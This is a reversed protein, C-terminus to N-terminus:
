FPRHIRNALGAKLDADHVVIPIQPRRAALYAPTAVYGGFGVVVQARTRDLVEGAARVAHALRGPVSLLDATPKRPLPVPPTLALAYGRLRARRPNGARGPARSPPPPGPHGRRLAAAAALAPQIHGATGGGALVVSMALDEQEGSVPGRRLAAPATTVGASPEPGALKPRPPGPRSRGRCAGPRCRAGAQRVVDAHRAGGHDRDALVPGLFDAAAARRHDPDARARRRHERHGRRRDLGHRRRRGPPHLHRGGAPRHAPRRVRARRLAAVRLAHRGAGAG